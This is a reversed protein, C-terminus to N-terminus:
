FTNFSKLDNGAINVDTTSTMVAAIGILSLMLLLSLMILLTFGNENKLKKM